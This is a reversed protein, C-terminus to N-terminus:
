DLVDCPNVQDLGRHLARKSLSPTRMSFVAGSAIHM